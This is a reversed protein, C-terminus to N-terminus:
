KEDKEYIKLSSNCSYKRLFELTIYIKIIKNFNSFKSAKEHLDIACHQIANTLLM